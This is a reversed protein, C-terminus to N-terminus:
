PREGLGMEGARDESVIEVGNEGEHGDSDRRLASPGSGPNRVRYTQLPAQSSM